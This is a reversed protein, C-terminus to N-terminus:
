HKPNLNDTSMGSCSLFMLPCSVGFLGFVELHGQGFGGEPMVHGQCSLREFPAAMM